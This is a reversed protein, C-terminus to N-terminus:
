VLIDLPKGRAALADALARAAPLANAMEPALIPCADIAIIEHARARMFGVETTVGVGKHLVRAHFTARRRGAGHADILPGVEAQGGAPALASVVLGPKWQAYIAPAVHQVACGGCNAFYPCFPAIRDSSASVIEAIQGREGEVYANIVDGPAAYPVFVRGGE